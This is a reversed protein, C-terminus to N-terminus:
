ETRGERAEELKAMTRSFVMKAEPNHDFFDEYFGPKLLEPPGVHFEDDEYEVKIWDSPIAPDVIEFLYTPYLIPENADNIVRFYDNSLGIVVYQKLPTLNQNDFDDLVRDNVIARARVIM